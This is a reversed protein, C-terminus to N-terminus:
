STFIEASFGSSRSISCDKYMILYEFDYTHALKEPSIFFLCTALADAFITKQAIVWTALINQPSSLTQSDIIHHYQGWARRNGASGCISQNCIEAVGIVKETNLPDELGIRLKEQSAHHYYMDGGADVCFSECGAEVLIQSVLDVLYGKGAAGFDLVVSSKVELHPYRYELVEEWRPVPTLVKPQLSYEADYGAQVLAQGILPTFDGDTLLYLEYYLDFLPKADPPLFFNGQKHAMQTVLSDTRFRSYVQDFTSIRQDIKQRLASWDQTDPYVFSIQWHTGIAEFQHDIWSM